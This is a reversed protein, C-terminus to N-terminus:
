TGRVPRFPKSRIRTGRNAATSPEGRAAHLFAQIPTQGNLFELSHSNIREEISRIGRILGFERILEPNGRVVSAVHEAHSAIRQDTLKTIAFGVTQFGEHSRANSLLESVRDEFAILADGLSGTWVHPFLITFLTYEEIALVVHAESDAAFAAFSWTQPFGRVPRDNAEYAVRWHEILTNSLRLLM